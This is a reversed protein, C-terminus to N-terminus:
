KGKARQAQTGYRSTFWNWMESIKANAKGTYEVYKRLLWSANQRLNNEAINGAAYLQGIEDLGLDPHFVYMGGGKINDQVWVYLQRHKPPPMGGRKNHITGRRLPMVSIEPIQDRGATSGEQEVRKAQNAALYAEANSKSTDAELKAVQAEAIRRGMNAISRSVIEGEGSPGGASLTPSAGASAGLAFLPHVGAAKADAVRRQITEDMQADFQAQAMQRNRSAEKKARSSGFIGGALDLLGGAVAAKVVPAVM